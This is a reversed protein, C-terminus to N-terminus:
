KKHHKLAKAAAALHKKATRLKAPTVAARKTKRTTKRRRAM